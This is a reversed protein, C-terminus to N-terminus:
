CRIFDEEPEPASRCITKKSEELRNLDMGVNLFGQSMILKCVKGSTSITM